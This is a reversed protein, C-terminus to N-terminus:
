GAAAVALRHLDRVEMRFLLAEHRVVHEDVGLTSVGDFRAPDDAAAQLLPQIAEWVTRWGCGLQRRIGNVSGHERRLQGIAWWCARTTLKARPAGVGANQEVFTATRCAPEPCRWRLKRWVIRVPRGFAPADILRVTIRGHGHAVAGCTPCGMVSPPSEVTVTLRSDADRKVDIVHLGPLDVLVDCRVCYGGSLRCCSTPESM